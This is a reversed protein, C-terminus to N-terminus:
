HVMKVFIYSRNLLADSLSCLFFDFKAPNKLSLNPFFNTSKTHHKCVNEPFVESLFMTQKNRQCLKLIFKCTYALYVAGTASILKMFTTCVHIQYSKKHIERYKTSNKHIKRSKASLKLQIKRGQSRM